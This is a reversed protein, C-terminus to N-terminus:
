LRPSVLLPTLKEAPLGYLIGFAIRRLDARELEALLLYTFIGGLSMPYSRLRKLETAARERHLAVEYGSLSQSEQYAANGEPLAPYRPTLREILEPVTRAAYLDSVEGKALDGGDLWRTLLDDLPVDVDKGKLLVLVNRLDIESKVFQRVIWEDGQFFRATELVDHYYQVELAFTLPFIDRTREFAEILPLLTGGYGFRVLQAVLADVTPQNLLDRFDDLTMAGALLGAPLDRSSVLEVEGISLSRGQVKSSLLLTLNQIDWRKLYSAVVLRGAFPTAEFAHHNRRVLTRNLASELLAIGTYAARASELDFAYPTPTLQKVLEDVNSAHVLSSYLDRPLFSGADARLRGLSSAYPSSSAM